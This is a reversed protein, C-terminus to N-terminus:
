TNIGDREHQLDRIALMVSTHSIIFLFYAYTVKQLIFSAMQLTLANSRNVKTLDQAHRQTHNRLEGQTEVIFNCVSCVTGGHLTEALHSVLPQVKTFMKGCPQCTFKRSCRRLKKHKALDAPSM